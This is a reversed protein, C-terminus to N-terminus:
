NTAYNKALKNQVAVSFYCRVGGDLDSTKTCAVNQSLMEVNETSQWDEAMNQEIRDWKYLEFLTFLFGM